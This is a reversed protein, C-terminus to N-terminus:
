PVVPVQYGRTRRHTLAPRAGYHSVMGACAEKTIRQSNTLLVTVMKWSRTGHRSLVCPLATYAPLGRGASRMGSARSQHSLLLCVLLRGDLPAKKPSNDLM